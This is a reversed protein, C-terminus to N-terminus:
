EPETRFQRRELLNVVREPQYEEPTQTRGLADEADAQSPLPDIDLYDTDAMGLGEVLLQADDGGLEPFTTLWDAM